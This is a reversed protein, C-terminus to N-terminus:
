TTVELRQRLHTIAAHAKQASATYAVNEHCFTKLGELAERMAARDAEREAVLKRLQTGSVFCQVYERWQRDVLPSLYRGNSLRDTGIHGKFRKEFESRLQQLEEFVPLPEGDKVFQCYEQCYTESCWDGHICAGEVLCPKQSM